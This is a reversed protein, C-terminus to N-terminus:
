QKKLKREVKFYKDKSFPKTEIIEVEDGLEPDLSNTDAKFRRSRKMVKKYLSHIIEREVEVVATGKMKLSVVKGTFTKTNKERKM